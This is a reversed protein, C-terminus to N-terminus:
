YLTPVPSISCDTLEHRALAFVKSEIGLLWM